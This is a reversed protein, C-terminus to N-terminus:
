LRKCGLVVEDTRQIEKLPDTQSPQQKPGQYPDVVPRPSISAESGAAQLRRVKRPSGASTANVVGHAGAEEDEDDQEEKKTARAAFAEALEADDIDDSMVDEAEAEEDLARASTM